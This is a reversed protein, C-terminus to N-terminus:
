ACVKGLTAGTKGDTPRLLKMVPEMVAIVAGVGKIAAEDRIICKIEGFKGRDTRKQKGVWALLEDDVLWKDFLPLLNRYRIVMMIKSAFRTECYKLLECDGEPKITLSLFRRLTLGLRSVFM